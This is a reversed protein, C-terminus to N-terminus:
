GVYSISVFILFIMAVCYDAFVKEVRSKGGGIQMRFSATLIAAGLCCLTSALCANFPFTGVLLANAMQVAATAIAFIVFSDVIKLMKSTKGYEQRFVGCIEKLEGVLM